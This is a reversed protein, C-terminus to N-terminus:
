SNLAPSNDEAPRWLRMEPLSPYRKNMHNTFWEPITEGITAVCCVPHSPIKQGDPLELSHSERPDPWKWILGQAQSFVLFSRYPTHPVTYDRDAFHSHGRAVEWLPAMDEPFAEAPVEVSLLSFPNHELYERLNSIWLSPQRLVEQSLTVTLAYATQSWLRSLPQVDDAVPWHVQTILGHLCKRSSAQPDLAFPMEIPAVDDEMCREYYRFAECMEPASLNQTRTVLYPPYPLACLGLDSTRQHLETSALLSLPYLMLADFADYKLVWDMSKRIDELRDGPLGAILDVMVEIGRDQLSRVGQLFRRPRFRRHILKLTEKNISQLGVEVQTFGVKELKEARVPDIDEANLEAHFLLRREGTVKELLDLLREFGPRRAFCPDLFVIEEIGKEVARRVETEILDLSFPKLKKFQKHYHCYACHRVCGRVTELWLIKDLHSDLCELLYPSALDRVSPETENVGTFYWQGHEGKKLLGPINPVDPFSKLLIDWTHEGQGVVGVDFEGHALLFENHPTIEPGGLVVTCTPLERHLQRTLFLSRELNWLYCSMGVVDPKVDLLFRLIAQDSGYSMLHQPLLVVDKSQGIAVARLCAPALPINENSYFFDSGQIPLQMLIIKM